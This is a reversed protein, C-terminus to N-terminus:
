LVFLAPTTNKSNNKSIDKEERNYTSDYVGSQHPKWVTVTLETDIFFAFGVNCDDTMKFKLPAFSSPCVVNFAVRTKFAM